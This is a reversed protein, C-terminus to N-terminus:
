KMLNVSKMQRKTMSQIRTFIQIFLKTKKKKENKNQLHKADNSVLNGHM